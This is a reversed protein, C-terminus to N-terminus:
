IFDIRVQLVANGDLVYNEVLVNSEKKHESDLDFFMEGDEQWRFVNVFSRVLDKAFMEHGAIWKKDVRLIAKTLFKRKMQLEMEIEQKGEPSYRVIDEGEAKKQWNFFEFFESKEFNGLFVKAVINGEVLKLPTSYYGFINNLNEDINELKAFEEIMKLIGIVNSNFIKMEIDKDFMQLLDALDRKENIGLVIEM